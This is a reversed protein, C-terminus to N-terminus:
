QLLGPLLYYPGFCQCTPISELSVLSASDVRCPWHNFTLIPTFLFLFHSPSSPMKILLLLFMVPSLPMSSITYHLIDGIYHILHIVVM